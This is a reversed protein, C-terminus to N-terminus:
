CGVGGSPGVVYFSQTHTSTANRPGNGVSVIDFHFAQVVGAGAGMSFAIDPVPTTMVCATESHTSYSGDGLYTPALTSTTATTFAGQGIPIDIGSEAAQFAAQQAQSNSTMNLELTAMNMGSVGLITLVVMLVLGVILAAGRQRAVPAHTGRSLRGARSRNRESDKM